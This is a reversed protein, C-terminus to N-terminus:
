CWVVSCNLVNDSPLGLTVSIDETKQFTVSRLNAAQVLIEPCALLGMDLPIPGSSGQLYVTGFRGYVNGLRYRMLDWFLTSM